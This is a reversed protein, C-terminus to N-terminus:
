LVITAILRGYDPAKEHVSRRYSFFRHPDFYTCHRTWEASAIGAARLRSLGYGPLDFHMRDGDGGAFFRANEPGEDMFEEFFEPGVEYARQSITPGIVAHIQSRIAGLAVMADVTAEVIGAQAGKWGAHAAGIVGSQADALLVPQCDATLVSLALGPTRTVLGDAKPKTTVPGTVHVADASHIQHVGILHSADVGMADAVRARNIEVIETQDSSGTGCNLGSFVGSSAGGARTFFGHRVPALTDATLIELTM